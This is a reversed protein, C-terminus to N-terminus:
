KKIEILTTLAISYRCGYLIRKCFSRFQRLSIWGCYGSSCSKEFTGVIKSSLHLENRRHTRCKKEILRKLNRVICLSIKFWTEFEDGNYLFM